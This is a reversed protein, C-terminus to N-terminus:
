KINFSGHIGGDLDHLERKFRDRAEWIEGKDRCHLKENVGINQVRVTSSKCSLNLKREMSKKHM